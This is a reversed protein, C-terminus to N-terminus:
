NNGSFNIRTAGGAGGAGCTPTGDQAVSVIAQGGACGDSIRSQLVSEDLATEDIQSGGLSDAAVKSATVSGGDLDGTHVEGNRIHDSRVANDRIDSAGITASAWAVGGLAVWLAIIGWLNSRIHVYVRNGM